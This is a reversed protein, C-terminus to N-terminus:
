NSPVSVRHEEVRRGDGRVDHRQGFQVAAGAVLAYADVPQLPAQPLPGATPAEIAGAVQYPRETRRRVAEGHEDM